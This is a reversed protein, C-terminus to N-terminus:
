GSGLVFHLTTILRDHGLIEKITRRQAEIQRLRYRLIAVTCLMRRPSQGLGRLSLRPRCHRLRHRCFHFSSFAALGELGSQCRPKRRQITNLGRLLVLWSIGNSERTLVPAAVNFGSPEPLPFLWQIYDHVSELQDDPWEQIERRYRGRHDSETCNYFGIIRSPMVM